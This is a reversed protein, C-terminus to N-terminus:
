ANEPTTLFALLDRLAAKRGEHYATQAFDMGPFYSPRENALVEQLAAIQPPNGLAARLRHRQEALAPDQQLGPASNADRSMQAARGKMTHALFDDPIM